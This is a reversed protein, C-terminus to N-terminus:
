LINTFLTSSSSLSHFRVSAATKKTATATLALVCRVQLVEKIIRCMTLYAPRFNHSWESLCHAEDVCVFNIRLKLSALLLLFRKSTLKEPSIFLVQVAGPTGLAKESASTDAASQHSALVVGKIHKPLKQLQDIMLSILPSVVLSIAGPEALLHAPLQYCLSKGGGTPVMLLSSKLKLIRQITELQGERFEKYGFIEQLCAKLHSESTPVKTSSEQAEAASLYQHLESM